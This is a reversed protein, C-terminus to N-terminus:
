ANYPIAVIVNGYDGVAYLCPFDFALKWTLGGDRSIFTRQDGWDFVSGDGVIGTTSLNRRNSHFGGM